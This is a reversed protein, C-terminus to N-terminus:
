AAKSPRNQSKSRTPESQCSHTLQQVFAKAHLHERAYSALKRIRDSFYRARVFYPAFDARGLQQITRQFNEKDLKLHGKGTNRFLMQLNPDQEDGFRQVLEFGNNECMMQLTSPVFNHIHAFHFLQSRRAFPAQLNPCEVYFMGGPKLLSAIKNIAENPSRLHEIVHVLLITDFSSKETLDDLTRVAVNANLNKMSFQLFEGGPDIGEAAFGANELVKVTCGIGAGIELLRGGPKLKGAIQSCIRLGNNWARMIRRDGPTSEGNYQKRYDKSYFAELEAEGPLEAHRVLGCTTCAVTSLPQGHRDTESIVQFSTGQCLDCPAASM